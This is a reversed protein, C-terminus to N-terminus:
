RNERKFRIYKNGLFNVMFYEGLWMSICSTLPAISFLTTNFKIGKKGNKKFKSM